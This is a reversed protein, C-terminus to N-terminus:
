NLHLNLRTPRRSCVMQTFGDLYRRCIGCWIRADGVPRETLPDEAQSEYPFEPDLDRPNTQTASERRLASSAEPDPNRLSSTEPHLKIHDALQQYLGSCIVHYRIQFMSVKNTLLWLPCHCNPAPCIRQGHETIHLVIHQRHDINDQIM